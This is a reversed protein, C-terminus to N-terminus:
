GGQGGPPTQVYDGRAPHSGDWVFSQLLTTREFDSAGAYMTTNNGNGITYGNWGGGSYHNEVRPTNNAYISSSDTFASSGMTMPGYQQSLSEHLMQSVPQIKPNSMAQLPKRGM